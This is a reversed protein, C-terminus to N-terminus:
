YKLLDREEPAVIWGRCRTSRCSCPIALEAPWAYDITLEEGPRITRKAALLLPRSGLEEDIPDEDWMFIECNPNCSHNVYRYPAKPVLYLDNDMEMVYRPDHVPDDVITGRVRGIVEDTKIPRQAFVGRGHRSPALKIKRASRKSKM